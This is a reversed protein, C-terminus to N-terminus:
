FKLYDKWFDHLGKTAKLDDVNYRAIELFKKERFLRGVDEGSIGEAKPSKIGFARSWLHLGGKRRVAGYFTLQDQLDIHKAGSWQSNLYRNSMLDKTPKIKHVASRIMLFPADFGRGNFSIFEDYSKAVEWFGQLMEKESMQKFTFGDEEFESITEGPAQFYIEGKETEPNMMGIVVVEGTLPSFGLGNKLDELAKEYETETSSDYKIWRTLVDQTTKDLSDFDESVTEIDFVLAAM